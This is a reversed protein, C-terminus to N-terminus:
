MFRYLEYRGSGIPTVEVRVSNGNRLRMFYDSTAQPTSYPLSILITGAQTQLQFTGRQTDLQTVTGTFQQLQANGTTQGNAHSVSQTVDIRSAYLQNQSVQQVTMSVVDGQELATVPYQQQQYVVVTNQDYSVTGTQGSTTRVQITRQQTNIQSVTATIQGQQAQGQQQAGGVGAASLVQGLQGLTNGGCATCAATIALATIGARISNRLM